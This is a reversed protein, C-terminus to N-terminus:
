LKKFIRQRSLLWLDVLPILLSLYSAWSATSHYTYANLIKSSWLNCAKQYGEKVVHHANKLGRVFGRFHAFYEGSNIGVWSLQDLPQVSKTRRLNFVWYIWCAALGLYIFSMSFHSFIVSHTTEQMRFLTHTCMPSSLLLSTGKSTLQYDFSCRLAKRTQFILGTVVLV